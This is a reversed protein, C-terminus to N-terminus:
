QTTCARLYRSTVSVRIYEMILIRKSAHIVKPVYLGTSTNAFNSVTKQANEAEVIFNMEKPLNERMEAALWSFEFQPFLSKIL